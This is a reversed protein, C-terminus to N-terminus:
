NAPVIRLSDFVAQTEAHQATTYGADQIVMVLRTGAVDLIWVRISEGAALGPSIGGLPNQWLVYGEPSLHCTTLTAPATVVLSTGSYGGVSASAINTVLLGPVHRLAVALDNVSPGGIDTFGKTYDCPDTSVMNPLVLYIGATPASSYLNAFYPGAVWGKWGAPVTATIRVPFPSGTVYDGAALAIGDILPLPAVTAVPSATPIPTPGGGRGGGPIVNYGVVAVVLLAAATAILKVYANMSFRRAAWWSRRQSTAPVQDLVADLVRDPLATVGEELWSRVIRTTDRDTSM